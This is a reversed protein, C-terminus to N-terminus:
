HTYLEFVKQTVPIVVMEGEKISLKSFNNAVFIAELSSNYEKAVKELSINHQAVYSILHEKPPEKKSIATEYCLYYNALKDQPIIITCKEQLIKQKSLHPNMAVFEKHNMDLKQWLLTLNTDKPLTLKEIDDYKSAFIEDSGDFGLTINEGIMSLLIIKKIYERTEKPLYKSDDDILVSLEKSGSRKIASAVRGEGCNYAMIALYWKGFDKHLKKLYSIAAQTSSIPDYREDMYGNITLSYHRATSPMFQWLGAAKKPSLANPKLGSEIMSLYIFLDSMGDDLLLYKFTPLYHSGRKLSNKYFKKLSKENKSVFAEFDSDFIYGGDIDLENLVYSYSPYREIISAHIFYAFFLTFTIILRM